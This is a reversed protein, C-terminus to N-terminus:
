FRLSRAEGCVDAPPARVGALKLFVPNVSLQNGLHINTVAPSGEEKEESWQWTGEWPM